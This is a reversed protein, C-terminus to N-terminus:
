VQMWGPLPNKGLLKARAALLGATAAHKVGDRLASRGVPAPTLGARRLLRNGRHITEVRRTEQTLYTMSITVAPEDLNRVLHPATSPMYVGQGPRLDFSQGRQEFADDWRVDKRTCDVHFTELAQDTLCEEPHWVRARKRGRVQLLFNQEHDMHFPTVSGPSQVFIWFARFHMGPDKADIREKVSDLTENLLAAYAADTQVNHLAIWSGSTAISAMADHVGLAHPHLEPAREFDTGATATIAHFRVQKPPLRKALDLLAPLQLLPHTALDHTVTTIRKPDFSAVDFHIM